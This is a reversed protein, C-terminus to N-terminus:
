IDTAHFPGPVWVPDLRSLSRVGSPIVDTIDALSRRRWPSGSFSGSSSSASGSLDDDHIDQYYYSFSTNWSAQEESTFSAETRLHALSERAQGWTSSQDEQVLRLFDLVTLDYQPANAFFSCHNGHDSTLTKHIGVHSSRTYQALILTWAALVVTDAALQHTHCFSELASPPSILGFNIEVPDSGQEKSQHDDILVPFKGVRGARDLYNRWFSNM